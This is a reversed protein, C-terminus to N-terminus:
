KGIKNIEKILKKQEQTLSKIVPPKHYTHIIEEKTKRSYIFNEIKIELKEGSNKILKGNSDMIFEGRVEIFEQDPISEYVGDYYIGHKSLLKQDAENTAGTINKTAENLAITKFEITTGSM